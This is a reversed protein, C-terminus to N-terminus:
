EEQYKLIRGSFGKGPRKKNASDAAATTDAAEAKSEAADQAKSSESSASSDSAAPGAQEGDAFEPAPKVGKDSLLNEYKMKLGPKEFGEKVLDLAERYLKVAEHKQGKAAAIDGRIETVVGKVADDGAARLYGEAEDYRKLAVALRAARIRLINDLIRDNGRGIAEKLNTLAEEYKGASVLSKVLVASALEGYVDGHESIFTKVTELGKPDNIDGNLVEAYFENAGRQRQKTVYDRYFYVAVILVIALLVGGFISKWNDKWWKELEEERQKEDEELIDM